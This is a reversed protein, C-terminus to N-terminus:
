GVPWGPGPLPPAHTVVDDSTRPLLHGQELNAEVLGLIAAADRPTASRIAVGPVGAPGLSARSATPDLTQTLAM